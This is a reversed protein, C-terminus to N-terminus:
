PTVGFTTSSWIERIMDIFGDRLLWGQEFKFMPQTNTNPEGTNLLLPTHDSIKRTLARVTSLPNKEEWETTMLIRDLKEFTPSTLNKAWTYKHGMMELEILNLGDIVANFLFPWRANYNAKNKESPHRLINFDGGMILPLNEQSGMRDLEALFNEKHNPQASGYVVVLAWIFGDSKNCLQIKIYHDGEDVLGIDFLQQDVGLLMGGPRGHPAKSHWLFDREGSINKLFRPILDSRGTLSIAIFSLDNEKTM